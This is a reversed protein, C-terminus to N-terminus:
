ATGLHAWQYTSFTFSIQLEANKPIAM